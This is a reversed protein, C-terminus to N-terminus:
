TWQWEMGNNEMKSDINIYIRVGPPMLMLSASCWYRDLIATTSAIFISDAWFNPSTRFKWCNLTYILPTTSPIANQPCLFCGYNTITLTSFLDSQLYAHAHTHTHRYTCTCACTHTHIHTHTTGLEIMKDNGQGTSWRHKQKRDRNIIYELKM